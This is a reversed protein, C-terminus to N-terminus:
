VLDYLGGIQVVDFGQQGIEDFTDPVISRV